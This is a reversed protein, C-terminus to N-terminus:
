GNVTGIKKLVGSLTAGETLLFSKGAFKM